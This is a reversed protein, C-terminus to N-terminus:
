LVTRISAGDNVELAARVAADYAKALTKFPKYKDPKKGPRVEGTSDYYIPNQPDARKDRVVYGLGVKFDFAVGEAELKDVKNQLRKAAAWMDHTIKVRRKVKNPTYGDDRPHYACAILAHEEDRFTTVKVKEDEWMFECGEVVRGQHKSTTGARVYPYDPYSLGTGIFPIRGILKEYAYAFSLNGSRVALSYHDETPDCFVPGYRDTEYYMTELNVLTGKEFKFGASILLSWFECRVAYRKDRTLDMARGMGDGFEMSLQEIYM